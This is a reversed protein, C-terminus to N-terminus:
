TTDGLGLTDTITASGGLTGTVTSKVGFTGAITSNVGLTTTSVVIIYGRTVVGAITGNITGNGYGRLAVSNISM